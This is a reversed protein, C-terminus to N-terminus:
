RRKASAAKTASRMAGRGFGGPEPHATRALPHFRDGGSVVQRDDLADAATMTSLMGRSEGGPIAVGALAEGVRPLPDGHGVFGPPSVSTSFGQVEHAGDSSDHGSRRRSLGLQGSVARAKVADHASCGGIALYDPDLKRGPSALGLLRRFSGPVPPSTRSSDNDRHDRDAATVAARHPNPIFRTRARDARRRHASHLSAVRVRSAVISEDPNVQM